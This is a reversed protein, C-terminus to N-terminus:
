MAPQDADAAFRSQRANVLHITRLESPTVWVGIATYNDKDPGEAGAAYDGLVDMWEKVDRALTLTQCMVTDSVLNWFGDTCLLFADGDAIAVPAALVEPTVESAGGLAGLLM